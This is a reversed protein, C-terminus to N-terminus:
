FSNVLHDHFWVLENTEHNHHNHSLADGGWGPLCGKENFRAAPYHLDQQEWTNITWKATTMKVGQFAKKRSHMQVDVIVWGSTFVYITKSHKFPSKQCKHTFVTIMLRYEIKLYLLQEGTHPPSARVIDRVIQHEQVHGSWGSKNCQSKCV